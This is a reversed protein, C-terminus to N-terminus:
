INQPTFSHGVLHFAHSAQCQSSSPYPVWDMLRHGLCPEAPLRGRFETGSGFSCHCRVPTPGTEILKSLPRSVSRTLLLVSRQFGSSNCISFGLVGFGWCTSGSDKREMQTLPGLHRELYM